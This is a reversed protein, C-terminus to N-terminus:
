DGPKGVQPYYRRIYREQVQFSWHVDRIFDAAAQGKKERLLDVV